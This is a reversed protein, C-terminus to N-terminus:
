IRPLFHEDNSALKKALGIFDHILDNKFMIDGGWTSSLKIVRDVWCEDLETVLECLKTSEVKMEDALKDVVGMPLVIFLRM